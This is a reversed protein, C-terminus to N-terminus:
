SINRLVTFAAKEFLLFVRALLRFPISATHEIPMFTEERSTSAPISPRLLPFVSVTSSNPLNASVIKLAVQIKGTNGMLMLFVSIEQNIQGFQIRSQLTPLFLVSPFHSNMYRCSTSYVYYSILNLTCAQANVEWVVVRVRLLLLGFLTCTSSAGSLPHQGASHTQDLHPLRPSHM